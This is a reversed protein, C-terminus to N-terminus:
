GLHRLIMLTLMLCASMGGILSRIGESQRGKGPLHLTLMLYLVIVTSQFFGGNWHWFDGWGNQCWIIGSYEAMLFILTGLLLFNRGKQFRSKGRVGRKREVRFQIFQAAAFSLASLAIKRLGFFLYLYLYTRDYLAPSPRKPFFLAITLLLLIEMWVWMRLGPRRDGTEPYFFGLCGLIFTVLLFSEFLEFFPGHGSLIILVVLVLLNVGLASFGTFVEPAKRDFLHFCFALGYLIFACVYTLFLFNDM